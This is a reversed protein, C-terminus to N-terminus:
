GSWHTFWPKMICEHYCHAICSRMIVTNFGVTSSCAIWCPSCSKNIWGNGWLLILLHILTCSVQFFHHSDHCMYLWYTFWYTFWYSFQVTHILLRIMFGNEWPDGLEHVTNRLLNNIHYNNWLTIAVHPYHHWTSVTSECLLWVLCIM